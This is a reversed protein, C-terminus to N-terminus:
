VAKHLRSGNNHAVWESLLARLHEESIPIMWDLYQRHIAGIVRECLSNPPPNAVPARLIRPGLEGTSDDLAQSFICDRDSILNAHAQADGVM